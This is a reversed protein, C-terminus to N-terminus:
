KKQNRLSTSWLTRPWPSPTPWLTRPWPSPTSWLTRPWPSPTPWLTRPWPSTRSPPTGWSLTRSWSWPTARRSSPLSGQSRSGDKHLLFLFHCVCYKYPRPSSRLLHGALPTHHAPLDQHLCCEAEELSPVQWCHPETAHLCWALGQPIEPCKDTRHSLLSAFPPNHLFHPSQELAHCATHTVGPLERDAATPKTKVTPKNLTCPGEAWYSPFSQKEATHLSSPFPGTDKRPALPDPFTM